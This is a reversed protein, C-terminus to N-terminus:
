LWMRRPNEPSMVEVGSFGTLDPAAGRLRVNVHPGGMVPPTDDTGPTLCLNDIRDISVEVGEVWGLSAAMADFAELSTVKFYLDIM